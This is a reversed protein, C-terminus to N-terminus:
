SVMGSSELFVVVEDDTIEQINEGYVDESYLYTPVIGTNKYSEFAGKNDPQSMLQETTLWSQAGMIRTSRQRVLVKGKQDQDRQELEDVAHDSCRTCCTRRWIMGYLKWFGWGFIYLDYVLSLVNKIILSSAIIQYKESCLTRWYFFPAEVFFLSRAAASFAQQNKKRPLNFEYYGKAAQWSTPYPGTTSLGDEQKKIKEAERKIVYLQWFRMGGPVSSWRAMHLLRM